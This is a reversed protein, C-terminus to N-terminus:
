FNLYYDQCLTRFAQTYQGRRNQIVLSAQTSPLRQEGIRLLERKPPQGEITSVLLSSQVSLSHEMLQARFQTAVQTPLIVYALGNDSLHRKIGKAVEATNLTQAQRAQQRLCDPSDSPRTYESVQSTFYPPNSIILDFCQDINLTQFPQQLFCCQKAWRTIAANGKAQQVAQEDVDIGLFQCDSRAKQALMLSLVGSGCGVDLVSRANDVDAWSGLLIADTGVKMACRDHAIFFHKFQFGLSPKAM